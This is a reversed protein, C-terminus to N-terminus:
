HYFYVHYDGDRWNYSKFGSIDCIWELIEDMNKSLRGDYAKSEFDVRISHEDDSQEEEIDTVHLGKQDFCDKLLKMDIKWDDDIKIDPKSFYYEVWKIDVCGINNIPRNSGVRFDYLSWGIDSLRNITPIMGDIVNALRDYKGISHIVISFKSKINTGSKIIPKFLILKSNNEIIDSPKIDGVPSKFTINYGEDIFDAMLEFLDQYLYSNQKTLDIQGDSSEKILFNNYKSLYKM